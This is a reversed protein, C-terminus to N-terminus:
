FQLVESCIVVALAILTLGAEINIINKVKFAAILQTSLTLTINALDVRDETLSAKKTHSYQARTKERNRWTKLFKRVIKTPPKLEELIQFFTM